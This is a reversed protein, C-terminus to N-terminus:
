NASRTPHTLWSTFSRKTPASPENWAATSSPPAHHCCLLRLGKQECAAEFEVRFESGGDVQIAKVPGPMREIVTDLFDRATGATARGYVGLVDWRSVIDRASFHKYAHTIGTWRVDASDVQVLDGPAKVVYDKPKRVAYPRVQPRSVICPDKLSAPVLKGQRRLRSLIRGVMSVSITVGQRRLIPQLKDKGWVLNDQRLRLM